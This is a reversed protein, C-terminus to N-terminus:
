PVVLVPVGCEAMVRTVVSGMVLRKLPNSGQAGMLVVDFGGAEATRSILKATNGVRYVFEADMRRTGFRRRIPRFVRAAEEDYYRKVVARDLVVLAHQSVRAVVHLVTFEPPESMVGFNHFLFDLMRRTYVSGDVALLVKMRKRQPAGRGRVPEAKSRPM